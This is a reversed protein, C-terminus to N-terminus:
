EINPVTGPPPGTPGDVHPPSTPGRFTPATVEQQSDKSKNVVRAYIFFLLLAFIVAVFITMNGKHNGNKKAM